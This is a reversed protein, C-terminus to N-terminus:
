GQRLFDNFYKKGVELIRTLLLCMNDSSTIRCFSSSLDFFDKTIVLRINPISIGDGQVVLYLSGSPIAKSISVSRVSSSYKRLVEYVEPLGVEELASLLKGTVYMEAVAPSVRLDLLVEGELQISVYTTSDSSSFSVVSGPIRNSILKFAEKIKEPDVPLGRFVERM